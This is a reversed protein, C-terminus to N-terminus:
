SGQHDGDQNDLNSHTSDPRHLVGVKGQKTERNIFVTNVRYGMTDLCSCQKSNNPSNCVYLRVVCPWGRTKRGLMAVLITGFALSM